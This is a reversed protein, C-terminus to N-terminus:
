VIIVLSNNPLLQLYNLNIQNLMDYNYKIVNLNVPRFDMYCYIKNNHAQNQAPKYVTNCLSTSDARTMEGKHSEWSTNSPKDTNSVPVASSQLSEM